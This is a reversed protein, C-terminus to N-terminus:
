SRFSSRRGWGQAALFAPKGGKTFPAILDIVKLGTEFVEVRRSQEAFSPALRHIPYTQTADVPGKGDIARGLVNFVRGLTAEGVPVRIPAGTARAPVGRRLGDTADMAVTRVVHEGLHRQVELMLPAQNDRGVEVADYVEPLDGEPFECDVVAGQIEVVQGTAEEM